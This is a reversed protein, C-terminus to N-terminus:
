LHYPIQVLTTSLLKLMDKTNHTYIPINLRYSVSAILCDNMEVGRSLRLKTMQEMAWIQDQQTVYEVEFLELLKLCRAQGTKGPAGRMVELWSVTTITHVDTQSELWQNAPKHNRYLHLIVTTDVIGISM